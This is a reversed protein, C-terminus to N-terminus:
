ARSPRSSGPAQMFYSLGATKLLLASACGGFDMVSAMAQTLIAPFVGQLHGSSHTEASPLPSAGRSRM